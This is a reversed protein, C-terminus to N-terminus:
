KNIANWSKTNLIKRLYWMDIYIKLCNETNKTGKMTECEPILFAKVNTESLHSKTRLSLLKTKHISFLQNVPLLAKSIYNKMDQQTGGEKTEVSRLYFLTEIKHTARMGLKVNAKKINNIRMIKTRSPNM